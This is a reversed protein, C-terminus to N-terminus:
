NKVNIEGKKGHLEFFQNLNKQKEFTNIQEMIENQLM